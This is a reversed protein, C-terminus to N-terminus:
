GWLQKALRCSGRAGERSVFKDQRSRHEVDAEKEQVGVGFKSM